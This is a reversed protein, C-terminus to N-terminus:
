LTYKNNTLEFYATDTVGLSTDVYFIYNGIVEDLNEPLKIPDNYSLTDTYVKKQSFTTLDNSIAWLEKDYTGSDTLVSLVINSGNYYMFNNLFSDTRLNSIEASLDVETKTTGDIKFIYWDSTGSKIYTGYLVDDVQITNMVRLEATDSAFSGNIVYNASIEADTFPSVSVVNKSATSQYNSFTNFDSTILVVHAFYNSAADRRLTPTFFTKTPTGYVLPCSNYYRYGSTTSDTIQLASLTGEISSTSSKVIGVDDYELTGDFRFNFAFKNDHTIFAKPYSYDDTVDSLQTFGSNITNTANSKYVTTGENHPSAQGCYIYNNEIWVWCAPHNFVDNYGAGTGVDIYSVVDLVSDYEIMIIDNEFGAIANNGKDAGLFTKGNNWLISPKVFQFDGIRFLDTINKSIITDVENNFINSQSIIQLIM